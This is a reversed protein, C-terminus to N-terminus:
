TQQAVIHLKRHFDHGLLILNSQDSISFLRQQVRQLLKLTSAPGTCFACCNSVKMDLMPAQVTYTYNKYTNVQRGLLDKIGM